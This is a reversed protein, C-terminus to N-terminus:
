HRRSKRPSNFSPVSGERDGSGSGPGSGSGSDLWTGPTSRVLDDIVRFTVQVGVSGEDNMYVAEFLTTVGRSATVLLKEALEKVFGWPINDGMSTMCLHFDGEIIDIQNREPLRGGWEGWAAAKQAIGSFFQEMFYYTAYIPSITTIYRFHVRKLRDSGSRRELSRPKLITRKLITPAHKIDLPYLRARNLHLRPKSIIVSSQGHRIPSKHQAPNTCPLPSSSEMFFSMVASLISLFSPWFGGKMAASPCDLAAHRPHSYNLKISRLM